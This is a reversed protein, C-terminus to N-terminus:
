FSPTLIKSLCASNKRMCFGNFSFYRLSGPEERMVSRACPLWLSVGIEQETSM